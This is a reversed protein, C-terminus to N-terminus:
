SAPRHTGALAIRPMMATPTVRLASSTRAARHALDTGVFVSTLGVTSIVTGAVFLGGGIGIMLLQGWLAPRRESEAGEVVPPWRPPGEWGPPVAPHDFVRPIWRRGGARTVVAALFRM